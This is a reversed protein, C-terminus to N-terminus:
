PVYKHVAHNHIDDGFNRPENANRAGDPKHGGPFAMMSCKRQAVARGDGILDPMSELAENPIPSINKGLTSSGIGESPCQTAFIVRNGVLQCESHARYCCQAVDCVAADLMLGQQVCDRIRGSPESQLGSIMTDRDSKTGPDRLLPILRIQYRGGPIGDREGSSTKSLSQEAKSRHGIGSRDLLPEAPQCSV